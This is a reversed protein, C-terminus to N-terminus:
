SRVRLERFGHIKAWASASRWPAGGIGERPNLLSPPDCGLVNLPDPVVIGRVLSQMEGLGMKESVKPTERCNGTRSAADATSIQVCENSDGFPEEGGSWPPARLSRGTASYNRSM